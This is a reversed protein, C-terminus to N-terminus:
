KSHIGGNTQNTKVYHEIQNNLDAEEQESFAVEIPIYFIPLNNIFNANENTNLRMMDKETTLIIKNAAHIDAFTDEIRKLDNKTFQHHDSFNLSIVNNTNRKLYEELPQVNAIGSLLLISYKKEFYYAKSFQSPKKNKFPLFDGYRVISFFIKQRASPKLKKILEEREIPLPLNPCKTVIIIDARKIGSSFERLTGTPLMFDNTYLNYFDTLVISLGPSVRRHQFADDLLIVQISPFNKLIRKIGRVRKEDVAVRVTTYKKKFQLPEDGIDNATSQTDALIFGKTKRGYGRSLTSIYFETKLLRILYEIHPTKGTGGVSLNGVSIVPIKFKVSPIIGFDFLKNRLLILIGYLFSIPFLLIRLLKM